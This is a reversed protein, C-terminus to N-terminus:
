NAEIYEFEQQQFVAGSYTLFFIENGYIYQLVPEMNSFPCILFLKNAM